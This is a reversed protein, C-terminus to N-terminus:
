LPIDPTLINHPSAVILNLLDFGRVKYFIWLVCSAVELGHDFDGKYSIELIRLYYWKHLSCNVSVSVRKVAMFILISLLCDSSLHYNVCLAIVAYM